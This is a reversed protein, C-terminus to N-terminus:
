KWTAIALGGLTAVTGGIIALLKLAGLMRERWIELAMIRQEYVKLLGPQGNGVLQEVKTAIRVLLDHDAMRDFDHIGM